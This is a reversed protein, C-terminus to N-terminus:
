QSRVRVSASVTRVSIDGDDGEAADITLRGQGHSRVRPRFGDPVRVDVKGSVTEVAADASTTIRVRGSVTRVHVDEGVVEISGSVGEVRVENGRRVEVRGSRNTVRCCGLCEHVEVRASQTRLDASAVAEVQISGSATTVRAAGLRGRLVVRGSASGVVVDTGLPCRVDIDDSSTTMVVDLADGASTTETRKGSTVVIDDRREGVVTVRGSATSVRVRARGPAELADDVM